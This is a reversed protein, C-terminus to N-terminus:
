GPRMVAGKARDLAGRIDEVISAADDNLGISLRILTDSIGIEACEEPSCKYYTFVRVQEIMSVHSGFNTGMYPLRTEDVFRAAMEPPGDVEFSVVAGHGSLVRGALESNPHTALSTHFVRGIGHMKALESAVAAGKENLSNMRLVLTAFSRNLLVASHPDLIGGTVNRIKRIAEIRREDGAVSGAMLDAHGGIYKGCSHIVLDAGCQVPKFNIPTAFTSDVILTAQDGVIQRIRAVDALFLHPNSPSEIFVVKCRSDFEKELLEYPRDDAFLPLDITEIGFRPLVEVFLNRINRYGKGTFFARDGTKLLAMATAAIAGMGSTFVLASDYGDLAALEEEAQLCNPSDYRGYRGLATRGSHYDVVEQTDRFYYTATQYTPPQLSNEYHHKRVKAM